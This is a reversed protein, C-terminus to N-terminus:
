SQQSDVVKADPANRMVSQIGREMGRVTTYMESNGIVEGNRAKLVFYASGDTAEKREFQDDDQANIRVSEIGKLASAKTTYEESTLIIEHNGAKLNFMFQGSKTTKLEFRGSAKKKPAPKAKEVVPAEPTDVNPADIEPAPIEKIGADPANHSVSQIGNEMARKSSYSESRGIIEGNKAKLVFYDAGSKDIKREFQNDEAANARVSAIGKELSAKSKYQQSTLIVEHNAAKLNFMYKGSKTSKVEFYGVGKRGSTEEELVVVPAPQSFSPALIEKLVADPAHQMVSRIGNEMARRSTYLQSEGVPESNQAKLVFSYAGASDVRREFNQEGQANIRVSDIGRKAGSKSKYRQSSLIIEYNAAKLHFFYKGDKDTALDFRGKARSVPVPKNPDPEPVESVQITFGKLQLSDGVPASAGPIFEVVFGDEAFFDNDPGSARMQMFFGQGVQNLVEPISNVVYTKEHDYNDFLMRFRTPEDPDPVATLGGIGVGVPNGEHDFRGAAVTTIGVPIVPAPPVPRTIESNDVFVTINKSGDHGLWKVPRDGMFKSLSVPEQGVVAPAIMMNGLNFRFRLFPANIANNNLRVFFANRVEHGGELLPSMEMIELPELGDPATSSEKYAKVAFAKSEEETPAPMVLNQSSLWTTNYAALNTGVNPHFWLLFATGQLIPEHHSPLDYVPKITVFPLTPLGKAVAKMELGSLHDDFLHRNGAGALAFEQLLRTDAIMPRHDDIVWAEEVTLQEELSVIRVRVEALMVADDDVYNTSEREEQAQKGLNPMVYVSWMRMTLRMLDTLDEPSVMFDGAITNAGTDETGEDMFQSMWVAITDAIKSYPMYQDESEPVKFRGLFAGLERKAEEVIDVAPITSFRLSFGDQIRSPAAIDDEPRCPNAPLPIFDTELENHGLLVYLSIEVPTGVTMGPNVSREAAILEDVMERNGEVWSLITACQEETVTIMQGLSDIAKGPSVVIEIADAESRATVSLGEVTGAGHLSRQHVRDRETMYIQEQTFEDAGLVLGDVFRVRKNPNLVSHTLPRTSFNYMTM